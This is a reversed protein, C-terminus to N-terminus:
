WEKQVEINYRPFKSLIRCKKKWVGFTREIVSRLSAHWRNFLEHKNRPPHNTNFQSMHYSVIRNRSSRYLTLFGKKYPYGSDVVYYKDAPPM